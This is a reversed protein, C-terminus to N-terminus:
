EEYTRFEEIPGAYYRKDLIKKGQNLNKDRIPWDQENNNKDITHVFPYGSANVTIYKVTYDNKITKDNYKYDMKIIINSNYSIKGDKIGDEADVLNIFAEWTTGIAIDKVLINTATEYATPWLISFHIIEKTEEDEKPNSKDGIGKLADELGLVAKGATDNM